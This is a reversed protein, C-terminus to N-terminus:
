LIGLERAATAAIEPMQQLPAIIIAQQALTELAFGVSEDNRDLDDEVIATLQASAGLDRRIGEALGPFSFALVKASNIDTELALSHFM